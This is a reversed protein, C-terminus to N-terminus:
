FYAYRVGKEAEIEERMRKWDDARGGVTFLATTRVGNKSAKFIPLMKESPTSDLCVPANDWLSTKREM